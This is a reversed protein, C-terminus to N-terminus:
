RRKASLAVTAGGGVVVPLWYTAARHIVVGATAVPLALGTMSAVLLILVTEVGGLGGPLPTVGAIAAVPVAVLVVTVAVPHGIAYLSLWLSTAIGLWGLGSFTLAVALGRRDKAVRGIARFFGRIRRRIVTRAPPARRPIVRAVTRAAPTVVRVLTREIRRRYRWGVYALVPVAVALGTVAVAAFRLRRGLTFEYAYYGVGLLALSISPIFNLTDVSAIAALGTEYKSNSARSILLASFPEGGAQGFPTVNNAFTAAAFVLFSQTPTIDVGLVGLVTRLALGWLTLWAIAVVVLVPVIRGDALLLSEVIRDVGVLWFVVGLVVLAGLFGALSARLDRDLAM